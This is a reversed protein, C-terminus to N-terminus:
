KFWKVKSMFIYVVAGALFDSILIVTAMQGAGESSQRQADLIICAILYISWGVIPIIYGITKVKRSKQFYDLVYYIFISPVIFSGFLIGSAIEGGKSLIFIIIGASFMSLAACVIIKIICDIARKM